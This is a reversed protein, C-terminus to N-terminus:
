IQLAVQDGLRLIDGRAWSSGRSGEQREEGRDKVDSQTKEEKSSTKMENTQM